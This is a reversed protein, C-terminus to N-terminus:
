PKSEKKYLEWEGNGVSRLVMRNDANELTIYYSTEGNSNMEFLDSIWYDKFHKSLYVLRNVPLQNSLINRTVAMLDGDM